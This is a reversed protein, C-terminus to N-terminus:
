IIAPNAPHSQADKGAINFALLLQGTLVNVVFPQSKLMELPTNLGPAVEHAEVFLHLYIISLDKRM